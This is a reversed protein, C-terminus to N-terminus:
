FPGSETQPLACFGLPEGYYRREDLDPWCPDNHEMAKSSQKNKSYCPQAM